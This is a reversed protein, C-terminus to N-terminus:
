NKEQKNEAIRICVQYVKSGIFLVEVEAGTNDAFIMKNGEDVAPKGAKQLVVERTDTFKLNYPMKGEFPSFKDPRKSTPQGGSFFTIKEIQRKQNFHLTVGKKIYMRMSRDEFDSYGLTSIFKEVEKNYINKKVMFFYDDGRIVVEGSKAADADEAKEADGKQYIVSVMSMKGKRFDLSLKYADMDNLPFKRSLTYATPIDGDEEFGEGLIAKAKFITQSFDLGKPLAGAFPTTNQFFPNNNNYLDIRVVVSQDYTISAGKAEINGGIYDDLKKVKDNNQRLGILKILEDGDVPSQADSKIAAVLIIIFFCFIRRV